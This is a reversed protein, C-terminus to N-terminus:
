LDLVVRDTEARAVCALILGGEVETRTLVTRPPMTVRGDLLRCRCSGCEGNRCSYDVPVGNAEAVRVMSEGRRAVVSRGSRAFVITVEDESGPGEDAPLETFSETLIADEPVGLDRLMPVVANMMAAPGCVHFRYRAIDPVIERLM